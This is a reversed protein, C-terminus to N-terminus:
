SASKKLSLLTATTTNEPRPGRMQAMEKARERIVDKPLHVYGKTTRIDKHGLLDAAKQLNGGSAAVVRTAVTHRLAYVKRPMEYGCSKLAASIHHYFQYRTPLAKQRVLARLRDANERGIYVTRCEENKIHEPDDLEIFEDTIQQPKLGYLEGYRFATLDLLDMVFASVEHGQARMAAMTAALMDETYIPQRRKVKERWPLKPKRDILGKSEAYDLVSSLPSLYKNITSPSMKSGPQKGPKALLVGLIKDEIVQYTVLNVPTTGIQDCVWELRQLNSPDKGRAWRGKPGGTQKLDDAVVKFSDKAYEASPRAWDPEAGHAKIHAEYADALNKTKFRKRFRGAKPHRIEGYWYGTSTRGRKEPYSM